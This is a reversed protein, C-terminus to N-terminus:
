PQTEPQQRGSPNSFRAHAGDMSGRIGRVKEDKEQDSCRRGNGCTGSCQTTQTGSFRSYDNGRPMEVVQGRQKDSNCM